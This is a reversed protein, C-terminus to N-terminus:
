GLLNILSQRQEPTLTRITSTLGDNTGTAADASSNDAKPESKNAAPEDENPNVRAHKDVKPEPFENMQERVASLIISAVEKPAFTRRQNVGLLETNLDNGKFFQEVDGYPVSAPTTGYKRGVYRKFQNWVQNAQEGVERAGQEVQGSGAFSKAKGKVSDIASRAISYPRAENLNETSSNAGEFIDLMLNTNM